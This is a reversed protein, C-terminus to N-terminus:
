GLRVPSGPPPVEPVLAQVIADQLAEVGVGTVTSTGLEGSGPTAGADVKNCVRIVAPWDPDIPLSAEGDRVWVVLDARAVAAAARGVGEREIEDAAERMGATDMLEIPWGDLVTEARLVDRTTGPLDMTIAREYGVIANILSSKGM